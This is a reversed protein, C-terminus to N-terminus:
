LKIRGKSDTMFAMFDDEADKYCWVFPIMGGRFWKIQIDWPKWVKMLVFSLIKTDHLLLKECYDYKKIM